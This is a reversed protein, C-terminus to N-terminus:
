VARGHEVQRNIWDRLADAPILKRRGIQIYPLPDSERRILQDLKIVCLGCAQAAEERSLLYKEIDKCYSESM